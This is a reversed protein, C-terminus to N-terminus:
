KMIWVIIDTEDKSDNEHKGIHKSKTSVAIYASNIPNLYSLIKVECDCNFETVDKTMYLINYHGSVSLICQTDKKIKM